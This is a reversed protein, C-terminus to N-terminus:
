GEIGYFPDLYDQRWATKKELEVVEVEAILWEQYGPTVNLVEVVSDSLARLVFLQKSAVIKVAEMKKRFGMIQGQIPQQVIQVTIRKLCKERLDKLKNLIDKDNKNRVFYAIMRNRIPAAVTEIALYNKSIYQAELRGFVSQNWAQMKQELAAWKVGMLEVYKAEVPSLKPFDDQASKLVKSAKIKYEPFKANATQLNTSSAFTEWENIIELAAWVDQAKQNAESIQGGCKSCFKATDPVEQGCETCFMGFASQSLLLLAILLTKM